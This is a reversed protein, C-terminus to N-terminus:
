MRPLETDGLSPDDPDIGRARLKARMEPTLSGGAFFKAVAERLEPSQRVFIYAQAAAQLARDEESDPVFGAAIRKLVGTVRYTESDGPFRSSEGTSTPTEDSM